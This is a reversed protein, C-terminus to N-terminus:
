VPVAPLQPQVWTAMAPAAAFLFLAALLLAYMRNRNVSFVEM